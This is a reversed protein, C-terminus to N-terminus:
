SSEAFRGHKRHARHHHQREYKKVGERTAHIVADHCPQWFYEGNGNMVNGPITTHQQGDLHGFEHTLVTCFTEPTLHSAIWVQCTQPDSYGVITFGLAASGEALFQDAHLHVVEKDSCPSGPWAARAIPEFWGLRSGDDAKAPAALAALSISVAGVALCTRVNM